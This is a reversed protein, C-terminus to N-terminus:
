KKPIGSLDIDFAKFFQNMSINCVRCVNIIQTPTLRPEKKGYIWRQYTALSLGCKAVFEYQNLDTYDIRLGELTSEEKSVKRKSM